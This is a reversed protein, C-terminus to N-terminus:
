PLVVNEDGAPTALARLTGPSTPHAVFRVSGDMFLGNYGGTHNSGVRIGQVFEELTVDATPDMWCFPVEVEVVALTNSLGDTIDKFKMGVVSEAKTAPIFIGGAIASYSCGSAPNSPCQYIAPMQDYFQKNHESDWPEDLRIKEYLSSQEIYPLILVRWSHLPKGKEDVTYLPPLAGYTDHYNHLALGIQKENNSCQMRRAAERAAQVAPLLLAVMMPLTIFVTANLCIGATAIGRQPSKLGLIGLILGLVPLFLFGGCTVWSVIGLILSSLAHGSGGGSRPQEFPSFTHGGPNVPVGCHICFVAGESLEKGCHSCFM